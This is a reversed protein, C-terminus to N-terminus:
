ALRRVELLERAAPFILREWKAYAKASPHLGDAAVLSRDEGLKQSVSFIDVLALARVKAEEAIIANFSTLGESIDRGYAYNPGNPMVSFDPINVVLLRKGNPLVSFMEDMLHALRERFVASGVAQVWDNVGLMLTGFEPKAARFAPLEHEIADETTWGTRAPNSVITMPIGSKTLHRALLAPWSLEESVGEGISYSDGVVAYRIPQGSKAEPKEKPTAAMVIAALLAACFKM